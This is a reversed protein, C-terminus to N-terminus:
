IDKKKYILANKDNYIKIYEKDNKLYKYIKFKKNVIFYDFRYKDILKKTNKNNSIDLYDKYNYDTYLDARGDIFVNINKYVLYGGFDYLNFLRKPKERKLVSIAKDSIIRNNIIRNNQNKYNITFLSLLLVIVISLIISTNKDDKREKIYDFIFFSSGIYLYNWFRLSRIGMYTFGLFLLLDIISIKKKSKIFIIIIVGILGFYVYNYPNLISTHHWEMINKQMLDNFINQYPYILMKLGHPNIIIVGIMLIFVVLYKILQKKSIKNIDIYKNNINFLGTIIFLLCLLYGLNSSGGHVNAWLLSVLPLLYIKKSNENKRLDYLLYLTLALLWTSILHPRPTILGINILLYSGLWIITAITNKKYNDKNTMFLVILLIFVNIFSYMFIHNNGFINKFMYIICEYLWEHSMWYKGTVFWSFIDNTLITHNNVMYKGATIHWYYDSGPNLIFITSLSVVLILLIILLKRKNM